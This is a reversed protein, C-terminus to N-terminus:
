NGACKRCLALILSDITVQQISINLFIFWLSFYSGEIFFVVECVDGSPRCSAQSSFFIQIYIYSIFYWCTRTSIFVVHWRDTHTETMHLSRTYAKSVLQQPVQAQAAGAGMWLAEKTQEWCQLLEVECGCVNFIHKDWWMIESTLTIYFDLYISNCRMLFSSQIIVRPCPTTRQQLVLVM